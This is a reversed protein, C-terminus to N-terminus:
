RRSVDDAESMEVINEGYRHWAPDYTGEESRKPCKRGPTNRRFIPDVARRLEPESPIAAIIDPYPPAPSQGTQATARM